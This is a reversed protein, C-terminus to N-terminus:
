PRLWLDEREGLAEQAVLVEESDPREAKVGSGSWWGRPLDGMGVAAPGRRSVRWRGAPMRRMWAFLAAHASRQRGDPSGVLFAMGSLGAGACGGPVLRLVEAIMGGFM